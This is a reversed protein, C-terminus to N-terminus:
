PLRAGTQTSPTLHCCSRPSSTRARAMRLFSLELLLFRRAALASSLRTVPAAILRGGCSPQPRATVLEGGAPTGMWLAYYQARGLPQLPSAAGRRGLKM